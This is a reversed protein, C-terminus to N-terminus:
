LTYCWHRKKPVCHINGLLLLFLRKNVSAPTVYWYLQLNRWFLPCERSTQWRNGVATTCIWNHPTEEGDTWSFWGLSTCICVASGCISSSYSICSEWNKNVTRNRHDSSAQFGWYRVGLLFVQLSNWLSESCALHKTWESVYPCGFLFINNINYLYRIGNCYHV